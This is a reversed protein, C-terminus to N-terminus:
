QEEGFFGSNQPNIAALISRYALIKGQTCHLERDDKCIELTTHANIIEAEIFDHLALRFSSAEGGRLTVTAADRIERADKLPLLLSTRIM